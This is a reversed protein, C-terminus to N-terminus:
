DCSPMSGDDEDDSELSGYFGIGEIEEKQMRELSYMDMLEKRDDQARQWAVSLAHSTIRAYRSSILKPEVFNGQRQRDQEVFVVHRCHRMLKRRRPELGRSCLELNDGRFIRHEILALTFFTEYKGRAFDDTSMWMSRKEEETYDNRHLHPIIRSTEISFRVAKYRGPLCTKVSQGPPTVERKM